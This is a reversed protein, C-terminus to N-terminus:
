TNNRITLLKLPMQAKRSIESLKGDVFIACGEICDSRIIEKTFGYSPESIRLNINMTCDIKKTPASDIRHIFDIEHNIMNGRTNCRNNIEKVWLTNEDYAIKQIRM